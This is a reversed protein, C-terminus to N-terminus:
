TKQEMQLAQSKRLPKSLLSIKITLFLIMPFIPNIMWFLMMRLTKNMSKFRKM